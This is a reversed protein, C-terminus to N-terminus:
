IEELIFAEYPRMLMSGSVETDDYNSLLVRLRSPDLGEPMPYGLKRGTFNGVIHLRKGEYSRTFALVSSSEHDTETVDGYIAVPNNKKIELLEQYFKYISRVGSALDREVNIEKYDPNVIQWPEASGDNFGANRSASWQMPTRAHDRAGYKVMGFAVPAPVKKDRMLAFVKRSVPDKMDSLSKFNTNTMGIEEGQYIFPTGYGMFTTIALMTAVQFRHRRYGLGFRCISRPQDHNEVVLTNWGKGYNDKQPNLLGCKYGILDFKKPIFKMGNYSDTDLHNFNFIADIEHNDERVYELADERNPHYAEGVVFTDYKSFVDKNLEKLFEHMRPGDVFYASGDALTGMAHDDTLPQVKSILNFVDLRFGDVGKDLWFKLVEKMEERVEPNEWNLDPQEESFLHMYFKNSGTIRTWAPGTFVSEWNTPPLLTKVMDYNRSFRGGGLHAARNEGKEIYYYKRYKNQDLQKSRIAKRFWEHEDSTHNLTMDMIVKLDRDHCEKVLKDFDEMTGFREHIKRFDRIDYGYDKWPSDYLPSFWIATVGLNKIYDLKSIIGEIDGYGDNNGDKFSLPYIQYVVAEKFWNTKTSM